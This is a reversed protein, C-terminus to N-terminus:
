RPQNEVAGRLHGVVCDATSGSGGNAAQGNSLIALVYGNLKYLSATYLDNYNGNHGLLGNRMAVAMGYGNQRATEIPVLAFQEAHMAPSLLSGSFLADAWILMDDLTSIMSGAAWFASPDWYTSVDLVRGDENRYGKAFPEPMAADVPVSSHAMGLPTLINDRVALHYPQGLAMEIIMGALIYNINNYDFRSGPPHVAQDCFAVLERPPWQYLPQSFFKEMFAQSSEYHALGSRMQLLQRITIQDGNKLIGPLWKEVTDDLSALGRDCLQLFLTATFSKTLSGIHLHLSPSMPEGADLDALGASGRWHAGQPSRVAAVAGPVLCKAVGAELADQFIDGQVPSFEPQCYALGPSMFFSLLFALLALNKLIKRPM